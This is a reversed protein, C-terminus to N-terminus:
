VISYGGDVIITAGTIYSAGDSAIFTVVSAIEEPKGLRKLPTKRKYREIFIPNQSKNNGAVPGTIGGPCITNVRINYRGYHSAMQRTLNTIGGKIVSYSMNEDMDLGKYLTPDQGLIGYISGLQIIVGNNQVECMSDAINKAIWIYSNMHIDINNRFSELTISKFTNNKWDKSKPYSSNILIDPCGFEKILINLESYIGDLDSCNFNRYTINETDQKLELDLVIIKAGNAALSKTIEAGILGNGGVVFATKNKLSYIKSYEM